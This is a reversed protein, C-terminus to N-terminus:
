IREAIKFDPFNVHFIIASIPKLAYLFTTGKDLVNNTVISTPEQKSVTALITVQVNYFKQTGAAKTPVMFRANSILQSFQNWKHHIIKKDAFITRRSAKFAEFLVL